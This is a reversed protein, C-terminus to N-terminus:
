RARGPRRDRPGPRGALGPYAASLHARFDDHFNRAARMYLEGSAEDVLLLTGEEAGTLEVAADVIAALVQDLDLNATVTRGIQALTELEDVRQRLRDTTRWTEGQSWTEM